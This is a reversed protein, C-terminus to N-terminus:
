LLDSPTLNCQEMATKIRNLSEKEIRGGQHPPLGLALASASKSLGEIYVMRLLLSEQDTLELAARLVHLRQKLEDSLERGSEEINTPLIGQEVNDVLISEIMVQYLSAAHREFLTSISNEQSHYNLDDSSAEINDSCFEGAGAQGCSPIRAKIVKIAHKIHEIQRLGSQTFRDIVMPILQREMCVAKWINVWLQGQNKLWTPPRPRGFKQRSFEEILNSTLTYLFTTPKSRGKFSHCRQWENESLKEILYNVCEGALAENNFRKNALREANSM